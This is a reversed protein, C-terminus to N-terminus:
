PSREGRISDRFAPWEINPTPIAPTPKASDQMPRAEEAERLLRQATRLAVIHAEVRDIGTDDLDLLQSMQDRAACVLARAARVPLPETATQM